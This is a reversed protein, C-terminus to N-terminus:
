FTAHARTHAMSITTRNHTRAAMGGVGRRLVRADEEGVAHGGARVKSVCTLAYAPSRLRAYAPAPPPPPPSLGRGNWTGHGGTFAEGTSSEVGGSIPVTHGNVREM